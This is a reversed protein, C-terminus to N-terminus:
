TELDADEVHLQVLLSGRDVSISPVCPCTELASSSSMNLDVGDVEHVLDVFRPCFSSVGERSM